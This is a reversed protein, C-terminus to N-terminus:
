CPAHRAVFQSVSGFLLRRIPGDDRSGVVLLDAGWREAETLIADGPRGELVATSIYLGAASQRLADAAEHLCQESEAQFQNMMDDFVTESGVSVLAPEVRPNVTVVRVATRLPWEWHAFEEIVANSHPSRDVALLIKM